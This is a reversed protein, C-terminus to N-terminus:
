RNGAGASEFLTVPAFRPLTLLPVGPNAERRRRLFDLTKDASGALFSAIRVEGVLPGALPATLSDWHILVIREPQVADVTHHWYDERYKETQSGLGGVGLILLDADIDDLLGPVFGASGVLLTDGLPHHIHLVYAKGLKYDFASAPPVLPAPIESQKLMTEVMEPDPFQFHKSEIFTVLYQGLQIQEGDVVVRIQKEPLNWGRGINATAESGILMAGTRRAVEPADMAHDFHSHVPIVAALESVENLALGASIADLDPEIRGWLVELPGPRSFWGDIMLQTDGDSFLLTSTGSFRVTIDGESMKGTAPWQWAPDVPPSSYGFLYLWGGILLVLSALTIGFLRKRM